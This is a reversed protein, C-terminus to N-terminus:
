ERYEVLAGCKRCIVDVTRDGRRQEYRHEAPHKCMRQQHLRGSEMYIMDQLERRVYAMDELPLARCAAVIAEKTM